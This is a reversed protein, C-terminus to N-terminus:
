GQADEDGEEQEAQWWSFMMETFGVDDDVVEEDIGEEQTPNPEVYVLPELGNIPLTGEQQYRMPKPPIDQFITFYHRVHDFHFYKLFKIHQGSLVRGQRIGTLEAELEDWTPYLHYPSFRVHDLVIHTLMTCYYHVDRHVDDIPLIYFDERWLQYCHGCFDVMALILYPM